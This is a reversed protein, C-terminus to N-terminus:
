YDSEADRTRGNGVGDAPSDFLLETLQVHLAEVKPVDRLQLPDSASSQLILTGCGFFRDIMDHEYAVNSIRSLPLDHGTKTFVGKRTILRRNTVTYTSTMWNMWPWVFVIILLVVAVAAIAITAWHPLSDPLTLALVAVVIILVAAVINPFLRKVHERTQLIVHEDQGLLKRSLAM